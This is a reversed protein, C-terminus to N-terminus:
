SFAFIIKISSIDILSIAAHFQQEPTTKIKSSVWPGPVVHCFEDLSLLFFCMIALIHVAAAHSSFSFALLCCSLEEAGQFRWVTEPDAYEVDM